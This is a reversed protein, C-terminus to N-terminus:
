ASACAALIARAASAPDGAEFVASGAVLIDAGAAYLEGANEAKVGGDVEIMFHLGRKQRWEALRRIRELSQPIFQQGGFGPNVSMLLCLDVSDLVEEVQALPTGPNLSLGVRAGTQRILQLCRHIHRSAEVHVTLLDAGARRFDEIYREPEEIMLHVDFALDTHPRLSKLVPLGISINPVYRGDMVDIHWAAALGELPRLSAALAAFDASLLSPALQVAPRGEQERLQSYPFNRM